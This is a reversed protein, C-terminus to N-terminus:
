HWHNHEPSWVQGPKPPPGPPTASGQPAGSLEGGAHDHWHGHEPSWVRGNEDKVARNSFTAAVGFLAAAAIGIAAVVITFNTRRSREPRERKGHCLKYKKGSGCPCKANRKPMPGTM